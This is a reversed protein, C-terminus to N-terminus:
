EGKVAVMVRYRWLGERLTESAIRSAENHAARGKNYFGLRQSLWGLPREVRLLRDMRDFSPMVRESLDVSRFGQLGAARTMEEYGALTDLDSMAWGRCWDSIRRRDTPSTCRQEDLVYDAIVIRGGPRLLRSWERIVPAKDAAHVLSECAWVVDASGAALGTDGYDAEIFRVKDSLGQRAAKRNARAVQHGTINVGTVDCGIQKALWLSSDGFGCGADVVHEGAAIGAEAAMRANMAALSEAHREKGTEFYGFHIGAAGTWGWGLRYYWDTDAYYRRVAALRTERAQPFLDEARQAM